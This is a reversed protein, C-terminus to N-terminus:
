WTVFFVGFFYLKVKKIVERKKGEQKQKTAHSCVYFKYFMKHHRVIGSACIISQCISM